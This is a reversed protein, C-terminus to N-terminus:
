QDVEVDDFQGEQHESLDIVEPKSKGVLWARSRVWRSHPLSWELIRGVKVYGAPRRHSAPREYGWYPEWFDFDKSHEVIDESLREVVTKKKKSRRGRRTMERYFYLVPYQILIM